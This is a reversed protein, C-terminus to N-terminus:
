KREGYKEDLILFAAANDRARTMEQIIDVLQREEEVQERIFWLLFEATAPNEELIALHYLQNIQSTTLLERQYAFQFVADLPATTIAPAELALMGPYSKLEAQESGPAPNAEGTILQKAPTDMWPQQDILYGAIKAAHTGEEAAQVEFWHASGPWNQGELELAVAQYIVQNMREHNFQQNLAEALVASLGM